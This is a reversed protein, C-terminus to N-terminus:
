KWDPDEEDDLMKIFRDLKERGELSSIYLIDIDSGRLYVFEQDVDRFAIVSDSNMGKILEDKYEELARFAHDAKTRGVIYRTPIDTM